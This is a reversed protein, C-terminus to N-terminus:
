QRENAEEKQAPAEPLRFWHTVGSIRTNRAQRRTAGDHTNWAQYDKSFHINAIYHGRRENDIFVLYDGSVEPLVEDARYGTLTLKIETAM